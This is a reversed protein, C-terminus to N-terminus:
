GTDLIEMKVEQGGGIIDGIVETPATEKVRASRFGTFTKRDCGKKEANEYM